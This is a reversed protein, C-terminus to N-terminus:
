PPASTMRAIKGSIRSCRRPVIKVMPDSAPNAGEFTKEFSQLILYCGETHPNTQSLRAKDGGIEGVRRRGNGSRDRVVVSRAAGELGLPFGGDTPTPFRGGHGFANDPPGEIAGAEPATESMVCDPDGAKFLKQGFRHEERLRAATKKARSAFVIKRGPM